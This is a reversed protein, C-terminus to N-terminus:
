AGGWRRRQLAAAQAVWRDRVVRGGLDLSADFWAIDSATFAAIQRFYFVGLANLDAEIAVSVGSILKLDDPSAGTPGSLLGAPRTADTATFGDQILRLGARETPSLDSALATAAADADEGLGDRTTWVGEPGIALQGARKRDALAEAQAAWRERTLRGGLGLAADLWALADAPAEALQEFRDVGVGNLRAEMKPGVSVILKLDDGTAGDGRRQSWYAAPAEDPAGRLRGAAAIEAAQAERDAASPTVVPVPAPAPAAPAQPTPARTEAAAPPPADALRRAQPIWRDRVVRGDLGLRRDLWAAEDATLDAISAYTRAGEARLAAQLRPGVGLIATLDDLRESRAAAAFSLPRRGPDVAFSPSEIRELAAAEVGWLPGTAPASRPHAPLADITEARVADLDAAGAAPTAPPDSPAPASPREAALRLAQPLWRDRIVGGRLGLRDDIWALDEPSFEAFQSFRHLGIAQMGDAENPGVGRIRTLDDSTTPAADLLARPRNRSVAVVASADILEAAAAEVGSLPADFEPSSPQLAARVPAPEAREPQVREPAPPDALLRQAPIPSAPVSPPTAARLRAIEADMEALRARLADADRRARALEEATPAAAADGELRRLRSRLTEVEAALRPDPRAAEDVAHRAAALEDQLAEVRSQAAAADRRAIELAEAADAARADAADARRREAVAADSGAAEAAALASAAAAAQARATDLETRLASAADEADRLSAETRARAEAARAAEARATELEASIRGVTADRDTAAADRDALAADRASVLGARELAWAGTEERRADADRLRWEASWLRARLDASAAREARKAEGEESLRLALRRESPAVPASRPARAASLAADREALAIDREALAEASAATEARLARLAEEAQALRERLADADDSAARAQEAAAARASELAATSDESTAAAEVAELASALRWEATWVLGRLAAAEARTEALAAREAELRQQSAAREADLAMAAEARVADIEDSAAAGVVVAGASLFAARENPGDEPTLDDADLEAALADADIADGARAVSLVDGMRRSLSWVQYRLQAAEDQLGEREELLAVREAEWAASEPADASETPEADDDAVADYQATEALTREIRARDIPRGAATADLTDRLARGLTWVRYRLSGRDVGEPPPASEEADLGRAVGMAGLGPTEVLGEGDAAHETEIEVVTAADGRRAADLVREVRNQLRGVRAVLMEDAREPDVVGPGAEGSQTEALREELRWADFKLKSIERPPAGDEDVDGLGSALASADIPAGSRAADAADRLRAELAWVRARLADADGDDAGPVAAGAGAFVPEPARVSPQPRDAVRAEALLAAREALAADAAARDEALVCRHYFWVTAASLAAAIAMWLWVPTAGLMEFM